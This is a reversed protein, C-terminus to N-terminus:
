GFAMTIRGHHYLDDIAILRGAVAIELVLDASYVYFNENGPFRVKLDHRVAFYPDFSNGTVHFQLSGILRDVHTINVSSHAKRIRVAEHTHDSEVTLEICSCVITVNVEFAVEILEGALRRVPREEKGYGVFRIGTNERIGIDLGAIYFHFLSALILPLESCAFLIVCKM